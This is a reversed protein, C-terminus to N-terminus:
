DWVWRSHSSPLAAASVFGSSLWESASLSAAATEERLESTECLGDEQKGRGSGCVYSLFVTVSRPSGSEGLRAKSTKKWFSRPIRDACMRVCVCVTNTLLMIFKQTFEVTIKQKM